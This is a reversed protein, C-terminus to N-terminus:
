VVQQKDADCCIPALQADAHRAVAVGAISRGRPDDHLGRKAQVIMAQVNGGAYPRRARREFQLEDLAEFAMGSQGEANRVSLRRGSDNRRGLDSYSLVWSASLGIVLNSVAMRAGDWGEMLSSVAAMAASCVAKARCFAAKRSSGCGSIATRLDLRAAMMSII